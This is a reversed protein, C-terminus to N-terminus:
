DTAIDPNVVVLCNQLHTELRRSVERQIQFTCMKTHAYFIVNTKSAFCIVFQKADGISLTFLRWMQTNLPLIYYKTAIYQKRKAFGDCIKHSRFFFRWMKETHSVYVNFVWGATHASRRRSKVYQLHVCVM